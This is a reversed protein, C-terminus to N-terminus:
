PLRSPGDHVLDWTITTVSGDPWLASVSHKMNEGKVPARPSYLSWADSPLYFGAQHTRTLGVDNPSITKLLARGTRYADAVARDVDPSPM